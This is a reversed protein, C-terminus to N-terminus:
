PPWATIPAKPMEIGPRRVAAPQHHAGDPERHQEALGAQRFISTPSFDASSLRQAAFSTAKTGSAIGEVAPGPVIAMTTVMAVDALRAVPTSGHISFTTGTTTETRIPTSTQSHRRLASRIMRNRPRLLMSAKERRIPNRRTQMPTCNTILPVQLDDAREHLGSTRRM